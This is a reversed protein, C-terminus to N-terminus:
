FFIQFGENEEEKVIAETENNLIDNQETIGNSKDFLNEKELKKHAFFSNQVNLANLEVLPLQKKILPSKPSSFSITEKLIRKKYALQIKKNINANETCNIGDVTQWNQGQSQNTTKGELFKKQSEFSTLVSWNITSNAFIISSSDDRDDFNDSM